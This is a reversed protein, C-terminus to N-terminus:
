SKFFILYLVRKHERHSKYLKKEGNYEEEEQHKNIKYQFQLLNHIVSHTSVYQDKYFYM